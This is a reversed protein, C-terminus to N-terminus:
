SRTKSTMYLIIEGYVTPQALLMPWDLNLILLNSEVKQHHYYCSEVHMIRAHTCFIGHPWQQFTYGAM